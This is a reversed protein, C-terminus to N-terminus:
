VFDHVCLLYKSPIKPPCFRTCQLWSFSNEENSSPSECNNSDDNVTNGSSGARNLIHDISFDSHNKAAAGDNEMKFIM